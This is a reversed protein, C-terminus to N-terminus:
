IGKCWKFSAMVVGNSVILANEPIRQHIKPPWAIGHGVGAGRRCWAPTATKMARSTRHPQSPADWRRPSLLVAQHPLGPPCRATRPITGPLSVRTEAFTVTIVRTVTLRAAGLLPLRAQRARWANAKWGSTELWLLCRRRDEEKRRIRGDTGRRAQGKRGGRRALRVEGGEADRGPRRRSRM